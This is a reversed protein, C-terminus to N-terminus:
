SAIKLISPMDYWTPVACLSTKVERAQKVYVPSFRSVNCPRKIDIGLKRLRARHIRVQNKQFDFKQGNFWNYAYLATTNAARTTDVISESILKESITELTMATVQLKNELNLFENHIPKLKEFDALGWFQLNERALMEHHLEQEFRVVGNKKCFDILRLIYKCEDSDIGYKRKIKPLAHLEIEYAKNYVKPYILRANGLKSLWDCTNGDTHLRPISNRYSLTSIGAIYDVANGEGTSINTTIDIRTIKAGDSFGNTATIKDQSVRMIKTCKTFVPLGLGSLLSNFVSVAQDVTTLGFLNDKRNYRSPNGSVTLRNGSIAVSIFSSHSGEHQFRSQILKGYEGSETDILQYARDSVLPLASDFDQYMTLWDIFM